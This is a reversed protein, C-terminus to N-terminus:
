RWVTHWVFHTLCICKVGTIIIIVVVVVVVVVFRTNACGNRVNTPRRRTSLRTSQLRTRPDKTNFTSRTSTSRRLTSEHRKLRAPVSVRTTSSIGDSATTTTASGIRTSPFPISPSKNSERPASTRSPPLTHTHTALTRALHDRLYMYLVKVIPTIFENLFGRCKLLSPWFHHIFNILLGKIHSGDHDQDTMIMLHGYRLKKADDYTVGHQLGLIKKIANIEENERLQVATAERVNLLKGRLPFVGYQDRGVVSLGSIALAKASDGETLILTCDQAYRTGANNADDLKKVGTVRATKKGDKKGLEKNAHALGRDLVKDVIDLRLVTVVIMADASHALFLSIAHTPNPKQCRYQGKKIFAPPIDCKSGFKAKTTNLTEKTQSDFAPNEILCNVFVFMYQKVIAPKLVVNKNKKSVSELIESALMSSIYNVHQGGRTTCISNVFSM